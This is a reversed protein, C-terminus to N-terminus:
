DRYRRRGFPPAGSHGGRLSSLFRPETKAGITATQEIRRLLFFGGGLLRCRFLFFNSVARFSLLPVAVSCRRCCGGAVLRSLAFAGRCVCSWLCRGASLGGFVSGLCRLSGAAVLFGGRRSGGVSRVAVLSVLFVARFRGGGAFRRGFGGCSVCSSLRRFSVSSSWGLSLFWSRSGLRLFLLGRGSSVFSASGGFWLFLVLWM